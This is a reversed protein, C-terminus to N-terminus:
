YARDTPPYGRLITKDYISGYGMKRKGHYYPDTTKRPHSLYSPRNVTDYGSLPSECINEPDGFPRKYQRAPGPIYRKGLTPLDESSMMIPPTWIEGITAYATFKEKRLYLLVAIAAGVAFGITFLRSDM